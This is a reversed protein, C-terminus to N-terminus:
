VQNQCQNATLYQGTPTVAKIQLANDVGLGLTNSVASHGAGTIWGGGAGVTPSSGGVITINNAEAFEYLELFGNGAGFTVGGGVGGNGSADACGDPKFGKDYTIGGLNKTWIGLATM